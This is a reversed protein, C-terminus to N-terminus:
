RVKVDGYGSPGSVMCSLEFSWVNPVSSCSLCVHCVYMMVIGTHCYCSCRSSCLVYVYMGDYRCYSWFLLQAWVLAVVTFCSIFTTNTVSTVISGTLVLPTPNHRTLARNLSNTAISGLGAKWEPLQRSIICLELQATRSPFLRSCPMARTRSCFGALQGVCFSLFAYTLHQLRAFVM